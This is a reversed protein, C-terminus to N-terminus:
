LRELAAVKWAFRRRRLASHWSAAIISATASHEGIGLLEPIWWRVGRETTQLQRPCAHRAHQCVAVAEPLCGARGTVLLFEGMDWRRIELAAM